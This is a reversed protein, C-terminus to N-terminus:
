GERPTILVARATVPLFEPLTQGLRGVAARVREPEATGPELFLGVTDRAVRDRDTRVGGAGADNLYTQFDDPTDRLALKSGWRTDVTATGAYRDDRSRLAGRDHDIGRSSRYVVLTGGDGTRAAAPGRAAYPGPAVTQPDDWTLTAPDVTSRVVTPGGGRTTSWVLEIADGATLPYPHRDHYAGDGSKPLRRVSSWDSVTPDLGAKTRYAIGRRTQGPPGGPESRSWFVWLPAAAAGPRVLVHLDDEVRPNGDPPFTAPVTLQWDTGDHRNYRVRWADGVRERWFLWLGDPGDPAAAPLQRETDPDGFLQPASWTAGTRTMFWIRWRRRDAPDAPDYAQWFLWLRSGVRAVSPHKDIGPRDVVPASAEWGGGDTYRKAWIDWGHRRHTHYAVFVSGDADPAAAPQGDHAFNVSALQSATVAGAPNRTVWWLNLREPLNTRAVNYVYEKVRHHWGTMRAVTASVADLAGVSRYVQPAHRIETRQAAVPLGFDTRWGVWDGLLPLLAADVRDLDAAGLLTRALSYLRDLEGGPLDLFRRLQGKDGDGSPVSGPAPLRVADFRRYISPLLGYLLEGFGYPSLATASARNHPDVDYVPPAGTHPFLGYYHVTEGRLGTDSVAVRGPEDVVLRGDDPGIPHGGERRVVRVAPRPGLSPYSWSLDIRNGDPHAVATIGRLIM